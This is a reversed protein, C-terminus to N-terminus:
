DDEDDDDLWKYAIVHEGTDGAGEIRQTEKWGARTKLYFIQAGLDGSRAKQILNQAVFGVARAKGKKYLASVEEDRELIDFFVRRSISFYDAIQETTLVAALTEVERKQEDTLVIKPRGGKNIESM